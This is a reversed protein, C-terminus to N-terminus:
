RVRWKGPYNGPLPYYEYGLGDRIFASLPYFAVLTPSLLEHSPKSRWRRKRHCESACQRYNLKLYDHRHPYNPLYECGLLLCAKTPHLSDGGFRGTIGSRGGLMM